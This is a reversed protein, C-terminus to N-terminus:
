PAPVEEPEILADARSETENVLFIRPRKRGTNNPNPLLFLSYKAGEELMLQQEIRQEREREDVFHIEILSTGASLQRQEWKFIAPASIADSGIKLKVPFSEIGNFISLNNGSEEEGIATVKVDVKVASSKESLSGFVILTVFSAKDIKLTGRYLTDNNSHRTITLPSKGDNEIEMFGGGEGARIDKMLFDDKWRLDLGSNWVPDVTAHVSNIIRVYSKNSRKHDEKREALPTEPPVEPPPDQGFATGGLLLFLGLFCRKM